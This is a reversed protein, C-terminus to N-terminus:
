EHVIAKGTIDKVSVFGYDRSDVSRLSNDGLVFIFGEPVKTIGKLNEYQERSLRVKKNIKHKNILLYYESNENIEIQISDGETMVCRKIVIKNDHLFTVIQSSSPSSWRIIYRATFPVHLGYAAKNIWVKKGNNISPEMSPGSVTLFDLIFLKICLGAFFGIFLLKKM